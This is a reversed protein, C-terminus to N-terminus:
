QWLSLLSPTISGGGTPGIAIGGLFFVPLEFKKWQSTLLLHPLLIKETTQFVFGVLISM